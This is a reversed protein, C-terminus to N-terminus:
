LFFSVLSLNQLFYATNFKVSLKGTGQAYIQQPVPATDGIFVQGQGKDDETELQVIDFVRYIHLFFM